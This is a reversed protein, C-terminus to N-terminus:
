SFNLLPDRSAWLGGHAFESNAAVVFFSQIFYVSHSGSQGDPKPEVASNAKRRQILGDKLCSILIKELRAEIRKRDATPYKEVIHSKIAM